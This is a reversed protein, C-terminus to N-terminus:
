FSIVAMVGIVRADALAEEADLADNGSHDWVYEALWRERGNGRGEVPTDMYNTPNVGYGVRLEVNERPSYALAVYPATFSDDAYHLSDQTSMGLRIIDRYSITRVDFLLSWDQWLGVDAMGIFEITSPDELYDGDYYFNLLEAAFGVRVRDTLNAGGTAAVRTSRQSWTDFDDFAGHITEVYNWEYDDRDYELKLDFIGFGLNADFEMAFEDRQPSPGYVNLSLPSGDYKVETYQGVFPSVWYPGGYTVYLDDSNMSDITAKTLELRLDLVPLPSSKLVGRALWGTMDGVRVEIAGNSYDEGEVKERNGMDFLSDYSYFSYEAAAHLLGDAVPAAVDFGIWTETNSLEFWDSTSGTEEKFEDIHPSSNTGTWDIWWGDRWSTYTAGLTVPGVARNLRAALLDTETNDYVGPDNMIFYDYVNAYTASLTFDWFETDVVIGQAGRGFPIHEEPITFDLDIHGVTELPNDYQVLEENYFGTVTFPGGELVAHGSYIDASIEKIDGAGTSLRVVASGSAVSTVTPNVGIYFEHAPRTLRWRPDSQLETQTEYTARYWGTLQVRSNAPTNSIAAAAGGSVPEGDDDITVGSNGYDGVVKPNEPDAIWESGNVVFKYEYEGPELDVVVRWVGDADQTLPQANMNWNNFDGALSVSGASPDDFTFEVGGDAKSLGAIASGAVLLALATVAAVGAIGRHKM